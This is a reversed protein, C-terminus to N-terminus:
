SSNLKLEAARFIWGCCAMGRALIDPWQERPIDTQVRGGDDLYLSRVAGAVGNDM